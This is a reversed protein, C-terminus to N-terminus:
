QLMEQAAAAVSIPGSGPVPMRAAGGNIFVYQSAPNGLVLPLFARAAHFHSSLSGELLTYWDEVAMSLLPPGSWWGGVSAVILDVSGHRAAIEDASDAGGAESGIDAVVPDFAGHGHSATALADLKDASRSPVITTWGAARLQRVIGEGVDGAGGLVIAKEGTGM